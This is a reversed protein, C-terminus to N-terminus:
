LPRGRDLVAEGDAEVSVGKAVAEVQVGCDVAGGLAGNDGFGAHLAGVAKMAELPTASLSAQPNFGLGLRSLHRGEHGGVDMAEEAGAAGDVRVAYGERVTVTAAARLFAHFYVDAVLTGEASGEVAAVLLEGAPFTAFAGRRQCRGTDGTIWRRGGVSLTLDTGAPATLRLVEAKRM